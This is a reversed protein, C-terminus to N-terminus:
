FLLITSHPRPPASFTSPSPRHLYQHHHRASTSTKYTPPPTVSKGYSAHECEVTVKPTTSLHAGGGGKWIVTAATARATANNNNGYRQQKKDNPRRRNSIGTMPFQMTALTIMRRCRHDHHSSTPPIKKQRVINNDDATENFYGKDMPPMLLAGLRIVRGIMKLHCSSKKPRNLKGENQSRIGHVM